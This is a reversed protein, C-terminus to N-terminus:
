AGQTKWSSFFFVAFVNPMKICRNKSNPITYKWFIDIGLGPFTIVFESLTPTVNNCCYFLMEDKFGNKLPLIFPGSMVCPEYM